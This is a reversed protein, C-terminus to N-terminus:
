RPGPGFGGPGMGHGFGGPRQAELQDLKTRQEPTLIQYFAAQAKAQTAIRQAMLNAITTAAQEIGASDNNKVATELAQHAAKMSDHATAGSKGANTFLTLAQQQQTATLNLVTTLYQVRHQAHGAPNPPAPPNQALLISAACALVVFLTIATKRM